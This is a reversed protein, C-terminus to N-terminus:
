FGLNVGVLFTRVNPYALRDYGAYEIGGISNVEPDFGSYNTFTLLNTGSVYVKATRFFKQNLRAVPVDYALRATKLRLYSGDEVMRDTLVTAQNSGPIGYKANVTNTPTWVNAVYDKPRNDRGAGGGIIDANVLTLNVLNNGQVGQFFATLEFGKYAFTNTFGYTFKPQSNGLVQRDDATIKGDNNTDEFRKAGVFSRPHVPAKNIEETSNLWGVQRYGFFNGIPDGVRLLSVANELNNNIFLGGYVLSQVNGNISLLTNRNFAINASTRWTFPGTLNDTSISAEFGRNRISGINVLSNNFGTQAPISVTFLLDKTTKNYVDATLNVRNNFLGLDLGLDASQNREWKLDANAFAAPFFGQSVSTQETPLVGVAGGSTGVSVPSAALRSAFSYNGIQANGTLGYSLRWKLNSIVRNGKLFPEESAKWAIAGSPFYGWKNNPAFRSSGDTRGTFTFLYKDNWKYNLRLFASVITWAGASSSSLSPLAVSGSGLDNFQTVSQTFGGGSAVFQEDYGKQASAGGVVNLVHNANFIKDYVFYNENILSYGLRGTKSAYTQTNNIGQARYISVYGPIFMDRNSFEFNAGFTTRFKLNPLIKFEGFINGIIRNAFITNKVENALMVPNDFNSITPSQGNFIGSGANPGTDWQAAGRQIYAGTSDRVPMIPNYYLTNYIVDNAGGGLSNAAIQKTETRALSVTAGISLRRSATIDLNIRTSYRKFGSNIIIGDQTLYNGSVAYRVDNTGGSVGLSYSRIPADRLLENQWDTGSGHKALWAAKDTSIRGGVLPATTPVTAYIGTQTRAQNMLSAAEWIDGADGFEYLKSIRQIGTYAEFDFKAKGATGRKTTIIIVGNSGRSGYIATASADKLVEISVIDNPNITSLPNNSQTFVNSINSSSTGADPTNSESGSVPFGDIVYLPENGATLSGTGRIRVSTGAGPAGSSQTLQLGAIRGQLAQEPSIIPTQKISEEDIQAVSGTLDRKKVEGYGVVVVENLSNEEPTLAVDLQTRTGVVIEQKQYGIYSFVLTTRGDPVNLRYSGDTATTTGQTTGKVQINVGVLAVGKEDRVRGSVPQDAPTAAVSAMLDPNTEDSFSSPSQQRLIIQNGTVTYTLRLTTMLRQLVESLRADELHLSIRRHSKVLQPSYSFRVGTTKELTSLVTKVKEDVVQISVRRDLIEQGVADTAWSVGAFLCGLFVQILSIKMTYLVLGYLNKM